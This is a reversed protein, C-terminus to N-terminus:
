QRRNQQRYRIPPLGVQRKFAEGFRRHSEYGCLRAIHGIPLTSETLMERALDIRILELHQHPTRGVHEAFLQELRRRSVMLEDLVDNINIGDAARRTMIEIAQRLTPDDVATLDTSQRTVVGTPPVLTESAVAGDTMAQELVAMATWGIQQFPIAASSLTPRITECQVADDNAGIVAVQAPISLGCAQCAAYVGEAHNDSAVFIGIPPDAQTIARALDAGESARHPLRLVRAGASRGAVVFGAGRQVSFHAHSEPVYILTRLGRGILYEAALRGVARDDM